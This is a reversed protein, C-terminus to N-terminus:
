FFLWHWKFKNQSFELTPTPFKLSNLVFLLTRIAKHRTKIKTFDIDPALYWQRFRPLDSRDFPLNGTQTTAINSRAGFTNEIGTGAAINLWSPWNSQPFFSHINSSLWYTQGNYDKLAREATSKGFLLNNRANLEADNYRKHTFSLKMQIRQENWMLEQSILLGSGLFNAGVDGWSWGWEASYADLVEITTQHIAGLMGGLWIYKKRSIGTQKWLEIGYLGMIYASYTHGIKDMQQWEHWDNFRHFKSQPYNKYWSHYLGFMSGTYVGTETFAITRILKKNYSISDTSSLKQAKTKQFFSCMFLISISICLNTFRHLNMIYM